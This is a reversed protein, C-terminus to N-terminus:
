ITASAGGTNLRWIAANLVGAFSVWLLYPALLWAAAMDIPWFLAMTAVVGIWLAVLDLLAYGPSKLGFFLASWLFNLVLQAAYVAIALSVAAPAAGSTWVLWGSVAIMGFLVTWVPGFLWNPPTWSPKKIAAYWPGPRFVAGGMAAAANAGIFALLAIWDMWSM